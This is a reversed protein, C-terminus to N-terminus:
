EQKQTNKNNFKQGNVIVESVEYIKMLREATRIDLGTGEVTIQSISTINNNEDVFLKVWVNCNTNFETKIREKIDAGIRDAVANAAAEAYIDAYETSNQTGSDFGSFLNVETLSALPAAICSIIIFGTIVSVYKRMSEPTLMVGLSSLVAAGIITIIYNKM